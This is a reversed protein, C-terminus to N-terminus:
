RRILRRKAWGSLFAGLLMTSMGRAKGRAASRRTRGGLGTAALANMSRRGCRHLVVWRDHVTAPVDFGVVGREWGVVSLRHSGRSSRVAKAESGLATMSIHGDRKGRSYSGPEHPVLAETRFTRRSKLGFSPCPGDPPEPLRRWSRLCVPLSTKGTVQNHSPCVPAGIYNKEPNGETEWSCSHIDGCVRGPM